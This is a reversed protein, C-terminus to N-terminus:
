VDCLTETLGSSNDLIPYIRLFSSPGMYSAASVKRVPQALVQHAEDLQETGGRLNLTYEEHDELDFRRSHTMSNGFASPAVKPAQLL